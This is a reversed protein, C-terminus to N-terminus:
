LIVEEVVEDVVEDVSKRWEKVGFVVINMGTTISTSIIIYTNGICIGYSISLLGSFIWIAWVSTTIKLEVDYVMSYIEPLYGLVCFVNSAISLIGYYESM